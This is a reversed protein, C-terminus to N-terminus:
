RSLREFQSLRWRREGSQISTTIAPVELARVIRRVNGPEIKAAAVPDLAELRAFLRESGAAEAERELVKRIAPDEGPARAPGRGSPSVPRIGALLPRTGREAIDAMVLRALEQFRAVTFRESPEALDLLHHPM